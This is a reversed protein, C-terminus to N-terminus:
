IFLRGVEMFVAPPMVIVAVLIDAVALSCIFYNTVHRLSRERYVSLVVLINGFVTFVPFLVLCLTWYAHEPYGEEETLTTNWCSSDNFIDCGFWSSQNLGSDTTETYASFNNSTNSLLDLTIGASEVNAAFNSDLNGTFEVGNGLKTDMNLNDKVDFVDASKERTTAKITTPLLHEFIPGKGSSRGFRARPVSIGSFTNGNFPFM